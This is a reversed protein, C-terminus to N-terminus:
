TDDGTDDGAGSLAQIWMAAERQTRAQPFGLDIDPM